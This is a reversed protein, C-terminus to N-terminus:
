LFTGRMEMPQDLLWVAALFLLVHLVIWALSGRVPRRLHRRSIALTVGISGCLGLALLGLEIPKVAAASLGGRSWQPEGLWLGLDRAAAQAVPVFTWLGTLFHFAYHAAWVGVGIPVLAMSFRAVHALLGERAGGLTRALFGALLLLVAPEVVLGLAFLTGLVATESQTGLLGALWTQFAYVPSVMGFANLLAGFTFLVALVSWDLRKSLRGIGSRLDDLALEKAPVRWALAVNDSPCAHVCDLCFTCDLNGVKRPLFLALECGRQAEREPREPERRGRICDKTHCEGCVDADRVRVELPSLTSSLFNFQGIPCVFKCFSAGSFVSDIWTALAFYGLILAATWTPSGWLDYREYAFLLGVFLLISPWKNRLRRPFARRPLRLKRLLDRLLLLPCGMCLLNGAALLCLVLVGRYHVWTLVTALNKPALAPGLLGHLVLVLALGFLLAQLTVRMRPWRLFSGLFAVRLLDARPPHSPRVSARSRTRGGTPLNGM